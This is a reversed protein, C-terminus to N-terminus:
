WSYGNYKEIGPHYQCDHYSEILESRMGSPVILLERDGHMKVLEGNSSIKLDPRHKRWYQIEKSLRRDSKGNETWEDARGLMSSRHMKKLCKKTNDSIGVVM